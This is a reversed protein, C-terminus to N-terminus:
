QEINVVFKNNLQNSLDERTLNLSNFELQTLCIKYKKPYEFKEHPMFCTMFYNAYNKEEQSDNLFSITTSKCSNGITAQLNMMEKKNKVIFFANEFHKKYFLLALKIKDIDDDVVCIEVKGKKVPGESIPTNCQVCFIIGGVSVKKIKEFVIERESADMHLENLPIDVFQFGDCNACNIRQQM